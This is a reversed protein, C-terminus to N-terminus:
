QTSPRSRIIKGKDMYSILRPITPSVIYDPLVFDSRYGTTYKVSDGVWLRRQVKPKDDSGVDPLIKLTYIRGIVDVLSEAMGKVGKPLDPVFMMASDEVEEDEESDQSDIMREQATFVVGLPLNYFSTLMERMLEGSKGYDKLQVMGPQRDLSREEALKMVYRLAMNSLRTLGDVCVWEYPHGETRLYGLADDMDEWKGIPWVHPNKVKMRSTGREPDLILTKEIGASCGFYTKGKKNRGYILFKPLSTFEAPRKIRSKAISAYDKGAM